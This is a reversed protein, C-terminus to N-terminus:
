WANEAPPSPPQLGEGAGGGPINRATAIRKPIPFSKLPPV